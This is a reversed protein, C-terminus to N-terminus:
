VARSYRAKLPFKGPNSQIFRGVYPREVVPEHSFLM